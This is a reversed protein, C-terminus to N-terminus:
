PLGTKEGPQTMEVTSLRFKRGKREMWLDLKEERKRERMEERERERERGGFDISNGKELMKGM